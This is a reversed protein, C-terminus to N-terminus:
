ARSDACIRHYGGARHSSTGEGLRWSGPSAFVRARMLIISLTCLRRRGRAFETPTTFNQRIGQSPDACFSTRSCDDLASCGISVRPERPAPVGDWRTIGTRRHTLTTRPCACASPRASRAPFVVGAVMVCAAWLRGTAPKLPMIAASCARFGGAGKGLAQRRGGAEPDRLQLERRAARHAYTQLSRSLRSSAFPASM